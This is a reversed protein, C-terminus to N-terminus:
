NGEGLEEGDPVQRPGTVLVDGVAV